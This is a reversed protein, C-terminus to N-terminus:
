ARSRGLGPPRARRASGDDMSAITSNKSRSRLPSARTSTEATITAPQEVPPSSLPEAGEVLWADDDSVSGRAVVAGTWVDVDTVTGCAVVATGVVRDPKVTTGVGVVAGRVVAGGTVAAVGLGPLGHVRPDFGSQM